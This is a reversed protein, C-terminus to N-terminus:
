KTHHSILQKNLKIICYVILQSHLDFKKLLHVLLLILSLNLRPLNYFDSNQNKIIHCYKTIWKQKANPPNCFFLLYKCNHVTHLTYARVCSRQVNAPMSAVAGPGSTVPQFFNFISLHTREVKANNTFMKLLIFNYIFYFYVKALDRMLEVVVDKFNKTKSENNIAYYFQTCLKNRMVHFSIQLKHVVLFGILYIRM